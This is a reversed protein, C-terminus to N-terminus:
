DLQGSGSRPSYSAPWRFAHRSPRHGSRRRAAPWRGPGASSLGASPRAATPPWTASLRRPRAAACRRRAAPAPRRPRARTRNPRRRAATGSAPRSPPRSRRAVDEASAPAPRSVSAAAAARQRHRRRTRGTRSRRPHHGLRQLLGDRRRARREAVLVGPGVQRLGLAAAEPEALLAALRRRITSADSLVRRRRGPHQRPRRAVDDVLYSLPQPIPTTSHETWGASSGSRRGAPTSPAACRAAASGTSGAAVAPSRDALLRLEAALRHPLPGAAVATLDAQVIITSWRSPSCPRRAGGPASTADATLATPLSATAGLATLGLWGAEAPTWDIGQELGCRCGRWGHATGAAGRRGPRRARTRGARDRAAAPRALRRLTAAYPLDAEPGLPHADPQLGLPQLVPRLELWGRAIRRWREVAPRRIWRDFERTPLLRGDPAPRWSPRPAASSCSARTAPM